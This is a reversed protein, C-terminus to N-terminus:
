LHVCWPSCMISGDVFALWASASFRVFGMFPRLACLLSVMSELYCEGFTLCVMFFYSRHPEPHDCTTVIRPAPGLGVLQLSPKPVTPPTRLPMSYCCGNNWRTTTRIHARMCRIMRRVLPYRSVSLTCGITFSCAVLLLQSYPAELDEVACSDFVFYDIVEFSYIIGGCQLMFRHVILM